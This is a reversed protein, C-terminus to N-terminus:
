AVEAVGEVLLALEVFGDGGELLGEGKFGLKELLRDLLM